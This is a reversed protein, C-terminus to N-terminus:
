FIRKVFLDLSLNCLQGLFTLKRRDVESEISNIAIMSMSIETRTNVPLHQMFKICFRHARELCLIDTSSLNNWFECGYLAKPLVISKYLIKSSLPHIGNKYVGCNVLSLFSSRLKTNCESVTDKLSMYKDFIVGLHTYKTVENVISNGISWCRRQAKFKHESENIVIIECKAANYEYRYTLSYQYCISLLNDLGHKSYSMLATDDASSPGSCNQDYFSFGSDSSALM